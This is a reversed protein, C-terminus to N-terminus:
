VYTRQKAFHTSNMVDSFRTGLEIDQTTQLNIPHFQCGRIFQFPALSRSTYIELDNETIYSRARTYRANQIRYVDPQLVMCIQMSKHITVDSMM